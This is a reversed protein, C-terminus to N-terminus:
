RIRKRFKFDIGYKGDEDRTAVVSLNRNVDYEIIVIQEKNTSLNRSFTVQLDSALRQAITVRATPDNEAGALFPDVRFTHLGFIREVRRGVEGTMEESIISAASLGTMEAQRRPNGTGSADMDGSKGMILLSLIDIQSLPPDSSVILGRSHLHEMDGNIDLRIRYNRVDTEARINLVPNIRNREQFDISGTLIDFRNGRFYISGESATVRGTVYPEAVTGRLTLRVGGQVRTLENDIYLADEGSHIPLNLVIGSFPSDGAQGGAGGPSGGFIQDILSFDKMYEARLVSVDGSLVLAGLGGNLNLEADITSALDKPYRLRANRLSGQLNLRSLQGDQVGASGNIRIQGAALKGVVNNFIVSNRSFIINGQLESFSYPAGDYSIRANTLTATGIVEPANRSGTVSVNLATSGSIGVKPFYTLHDLVGLNLKGTVQLNLEKDPGFPIIGNREFSLSGGEGVLNAREIKIGNRDGSFRIDGENHFEHGNVTFSAGNMTGERYTLRSYDAFPGELILSGYLKTTMDSLLKPADDAILKKVNWDSFKLAATGPYDAETQVRVDGQFAGLDSRFDIQTVTLTKERLALAATGNGLDLGAYRLGAVTLLGKAEPQEPTGSIEGSATVRAEIPLSRSKVQPLDALPLEKLGARLNMRRTDLDVEGDAQVVASGRRIQGDAIMLKGDKLELAATLLDFPQGVAMGDRVELRGNAQIAGSEYQVRLKPSSLFGTLKDSFAAGFETLSELAIRNLSGEFFFDPYEDDQTTEIWFEGGATQGRKQAKMSHLQLRNGDWFAHGSLGDIRYNRWQGNEVSALGDYAVGDPLRLRFEGDLAYRGTIAQWEPRRHFLDRLAPSFGRLMRFLEAPRNTTMKVKHRVADLGTVELTTGPSSLSAQKVRWADKRYFFAASGQLATRSEEGPAADALGHLVVSGEASFDGHGQRWELIVDANVRNELALASLDMLGSGDLIRVDHASIRLHNPQPNSAKLQVEGELEFSGEGLRGRVDKLQLVDSRIDFLGTMEHATSTRYSLADAQFKGGLHYQRGDVNIDMIVNVQGRADKLAPTILVADEGALIGSLRVQLVPSKWPRLSGSGQFTSRDERVKFEVIELGTPMVNLRANLDYVFRRGLWLLPSNRYSVEVAYRQPDPHYQINCELGDLVLDLPIRRNDYEVWSDKVRARRAAVSLSRRIIPEMSWPGGGPQPVISMRLRDLNLESLEIRPRWFTALRFSGSAEAVALNLGKASKVELRTVTFRGRLVDLSLRSMTVHLGTAQQIRATLTARVWEQFRNSRLYTIGAGACALLVLGVATLLVPHPKLRM